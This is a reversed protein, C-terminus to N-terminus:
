VAVQSCSRQNAAHTVFSPASRGSTSLPRSALSAQQWNQGGTEGGGDGDSGLGSGGEGDGGDGEGDGGGLGYEGGGGGDGGITRSQSAM